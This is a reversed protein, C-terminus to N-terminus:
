VAQRTEQREIRRDNFGKMFGTRASSLFTVINLVIIAQAIYGWWKKNHSQTYRSASRWTGPISWISFSFIVILTTLWQTDAILEAFISIVFAALSYNLWYSVPLSLEGRWHRSLYDIM